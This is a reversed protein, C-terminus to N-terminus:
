TPQEATNGFDFRITVHAGKKRVFNAVTVEKAQTAAATLCIGYNTIDATGDFSVGNITRANTLADSEESAPVKRLSTELTTLRGNIGTLRTKFMNEFLEWVSVPFRKYDAM